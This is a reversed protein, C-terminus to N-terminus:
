YACREDEQRAHKYRAQEVKVLLRQLRPRNFRQVIIFPLNGVFYLIAVVAGGWGKWILACFLGAASLLMHIFEAVCTEQIMLTLEATGYHSSFAKPPMMGPLIKSMDPIKNQWKRVNLKLYINGNQEFSFPRYPFIHACFWRKPLIRGLVFGLVGILALYIVCDWIKPM